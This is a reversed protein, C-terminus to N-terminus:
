LPWPTAQYFRLIVRSATPHMHTKRMWSFRTQSLDSHTAGCTRLMQAHTGRAAPTHGTHASASLLNASIASLCQKFIPSFKPFYKYQSFLSISNPPREEAHAKCAASTRGAHASASVPASRHEVPPSTWLSGCLDMSVRLSGCLVTSFSYLEYLFMSSWLSTYLGASTWLHEYLSMSPCLPGYLSM